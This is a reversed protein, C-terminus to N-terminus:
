PSARRGPRSLLRQLGERYRAPQELRAAMAWAVGLALLLGALTAACALPLRQAVEPRLLAMLLVLLPWHVLYLTYAFRAVRAPAQLTWAPWRWDFLIQAYLLGFGAQVLAAELPNAWRVSLVAPQVYLAGAVFGWLLPALGRRVRQWSAGARACFAGLTWVFAFLLFSPSEWMCLGALAVAALSAPHGWGRQSLGWVLLGAILYLRAEVFLSWLAPNGQELGSVFFFATVFEQPRARLEHPTDPPALVAFAAAALASLALAGALPPWLRALRALAYARVDFRGSARHKRQMGDAILWGSLLFFVLVAHRAATGFFDIVASDPAVFPMWFVQALHAALVVLAAGGRLGDLQLSLGPDLARSVSRAL